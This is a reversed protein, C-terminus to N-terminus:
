EGEPSHVERVSTIAGEADRQVSKEVITKAGGQRTEVNVDARIAGDAITMRADVHPEIRLAGDAITTTNRADIPSEVRVAGDAITTSTRADVPAHVTVSHSPAEGFMRQLVDVAKEEPMRALMDTFRNMWEGAKREATSAQTSQFQGVQSMKRPDSDLIIGLSDLKANFEAIEALVEDPDYGRERIAEPLTQIGTRVNRQVALGEKDPEIMPLPPATWVAAPPDKVLGALVATEMAWGWVPDCFQPILMRWRWDTVRSWHRLRSMRAASFPLDTYDGTLDEYAVGIGTAIARLNVGCYEGYERVTPPQVVEVSRGPPLNIISAPGLMDIPEGTASAEDVAGTGLPANSGDVDTTLVSLCAAVKQKMLTADEFEDLDKMRLIVPAFWSAARVQGARKGKFVHLVESAPVRKSPSFLTGTVKISDGPHSSYLWYAARRGLADFEVGQVVRGGTGGAILYTKSTDLYDPELLQVQLPIPYGDEPRRLRRRVLVEGAEAVTTMVLKQLGYFDCRGDADCATTEAWQKWLEFAVDHKRKPKAVIGDGVAHDGITTLASEAYPNNRVLDRATERLRALTAGRFVTNADGGTRNWNQTRRGSSAGEYHRLAVDAIVRARLRRLQREPSVLGVIRDLFSLELKPM